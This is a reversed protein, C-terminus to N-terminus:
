YKILIMADRGLDYFTVFIGGNQIWIYDLIADGDVSLKHSIVNKAFRTSWMDVDNGRCLLFKNTPLLMANYGPANITNEKRLSGLKIVEISDRGCAFLLNESTMIKNVTPGVELVGVAEMEGENMLKTVDWIQVKFLATLCYLFKRRSCTLYSVPTGIPISRILVLDSLSWVNIKSDTSGSFLYQESVCLSRVAGEHNELIKWCELSTTDWAMITKDYSGSFLFKETSALALIHGTHGVLHRINGTNIDIATIHNQLDNSANNSATALFLYISCSVASVISGINKDMKCLIESSRFLCLDYIPHVNSTGWVIRPWKVDFGDKNVNTVFEWTNYNIDAIANLIDLRSTKGTLSLLKGKFTSGVDLTIQCVKAVEPLSNMRTVYKLCLTTATETNDRFEHISSLVLIKTAMIKDSIEPVVGFAMLASDRAKKFEDKATTPDKSVLDYGTELFAIAAVLEKRRLANLHEHIKQFENLLLQRLKEEAVDGHEFKSATKPAFLKWAIGFPLAFHLCKLWLSLIKKGLLASYIYIYPTLNM